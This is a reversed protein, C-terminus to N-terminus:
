HKDPSRVFVEKLLRKFVENRRAKYVKVTTLFLALGFYASPTSDTTEVHVTNTSRTFSRSGSNRSPLIPRSGSTSTANAALIIFSCPASNSVSTDPFAKDLFIDFSSGPEQQDSGHVRDLSPTGTKQSYRAQTVYGSLGMRVRELNQSRTEMSSTVKFRYLTEPTTRSSISDLTQFVVALL